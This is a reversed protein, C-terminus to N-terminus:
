LVGYFVLVLPGWGVKANGERNDRTFDVNDTQVDHHVNCSYGTPFSRDSRITRYIDGYDSDIRLSVDYHRRNTRMIDDFSEVCNVVEARYSKRKDEKLEKILTNIGLAIIGIGLM